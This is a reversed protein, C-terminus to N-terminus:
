EYFKWSVGFKIARDQLPYGPITYYDYGFLGSNIHQYKLFIRARQIKLNVFLDALLIDNIKKTKQVYFSQIAPLYSDAYYSTYYKVDLGFQTILASKFMNMTYYFTHKGMFEPLHIIDEGKVKQYFLENDIRFRQITFKKNLHIQFINQKPAYQKPILDEDLFLYNSIENLSFGLKFSKYLYSFGISRSEEKNFNNDWFFHNSIYRKMIWDAENRKITAHFLINHEHFINYKGDLNVLLDNENYDGFVYTANGSFNLSKSFNISVFASPIIQNFYLSRLTDYIDIYKHTVQFRALIKPKINKEYPNFNSWALSNSLEKTGISDFTGTSDFYIKEYYSEFENELYTFGFRKYNVTHTFVGFNFRKGKTSDNVNKFNGSVDYYQKAYINMEKVISSASNLNVPIIRRDYASSDEFDNYNSIGGNEQNTTRNNIFNAIMGYKSNKSKYRSNFYVKSNNSKQNVYSGSSSVLSYNLGINLRERVNQSHIVTFVQEKKAGQFYVVDSYPKIVDYYKINENKFLYADLSNFGINFGPSKESTFVLDKYPLGVNGSSAFFNTKSYIPNYDQFGFTLTDFYYKNINGDIEFKDFYFYVGNSDIVLSTSDTNQSFSSGICIISLILSIKLKIFQM